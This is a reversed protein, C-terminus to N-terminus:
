SIRIKIKPEITSFYFISNFVESELMDIIPKYTKLKQNFVIHLNIQIQNNDINLSLAKTSFTDFNKVNKKVVKTLAYKSISINNLLIKNNKM